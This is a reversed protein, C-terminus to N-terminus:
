GLHPDAAARLGHHVRLRTSHHLPLEDMALRDIWAVNPTEDSTRPSGDLLQARFLIAFQQRVEGDSYAIIHKPDSYIGIVDVVKM